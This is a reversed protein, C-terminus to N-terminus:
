GGSEPVVVKWQENDCCIDACRQRIPYAPPTCVRIIEHLIRPISDDIKPPKARAKEDDHPNTHCSKVGEAPSRGGKYVDSYGTVLTTM